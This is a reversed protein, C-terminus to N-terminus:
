DTETRLKRAAAAVSTVDMLGAPDPWAHHRVDGGDIAGALPSRSVFFLGTDRSQTWENGWEDCQIPQRVAAPLPLPYPVHVRRVDSDFFSSLEERMHTRQSRYHAIAAPGGIGLHASLNEYAHVNLSTVKTGGIDFPVADVPRHDLAARVRESHTMGPM